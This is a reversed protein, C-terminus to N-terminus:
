FHADIICLFYNRAQHRNRAIFEIRSWIYGMYDTDDECDISHMERLIVNGETDVSQIDTVVEAFQEITGWGHTETIHHLVDLRLQSLNCANVFDIRKLIPHTCGLDAYTEEELPHPIRPPEFKKSNKSVPIMHWYRGGLLYWDWYLQGQDIMNNLINDLHPIKDKHVVVLVRRHM